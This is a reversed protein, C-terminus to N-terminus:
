NIRIRIRELLTVLVTSKSATINQLCSATLTHTCMYIYTCTCVFMHAYLRWNHTRAVRARVCVCYLWVCLVRVCGEGFLLEYVTFFVCVCLVYLICMCICVRSQFVYVVSTIDEGEEKVPAKRWM